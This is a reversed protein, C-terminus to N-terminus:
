QTDGYHVVVPMNEYVLEYITPMVKPPINVCGHSGNWKWINGGFSYRWDADHLGIGTDTLRIWYDVPTEYGWEGDDQKDGRLVTDTKKDYAFYAGAPTRHEKDNLGSVVDTELVVEGNEYIWLHQKSLDVEVYSSGFGHNDDPEAAETRRYVPEREVQENEDLEEWLQEEEKTKDIRYGYYGKGPVMIEDGDHTTFAHEKYVTDVEEALEKVYEELCEDWVDDDRYYDGEDDVELWDKLIPGDLVKTAGGPLKYVVRGGALENLQEAEEGLDEDDKRIEPYSYIGETNGLDVSGIEKDVATIVTSRVLEPDLTTGEVEPIVTFTGDVYDLHADEPAIMNSENMQPAANLIALLKEKSYEKKENIEHSNKRFLGAGWLYPNQQQMLADLTGDSVYHYDIEDNSVALDKGDRFKLILGYDGFVEEMESVTLGSADVGNIVTGPIFTDRFELAENIYLSGVIAAASLVAAIAGQKFENKREIM